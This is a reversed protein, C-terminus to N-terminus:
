GPLVAQALIKCPADPINETYWGAGQHTLQSTLNRIGQKDALLLPGDVHYRGCNDAVPLHRTGGPGGVQYVSNNYLQIIAVCDRLSGDRKLTNVKTM